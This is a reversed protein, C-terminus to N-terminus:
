TGSRTVDPVWPAPRYHNPATSKAKQMAKIAAWAGDYGFARPNRCMSVVAGAAFGCATGFRHRTTLRSWGSL